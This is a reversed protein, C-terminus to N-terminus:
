QSISSLTYGFYSDPKVLLRIRYNGLSTAKKNTSKNYEYLTATLVYTKPDSAVAQTVTFYHGIDGNDSYTFTYSDSGKDYTLFGGNGVPSPLSTSDTYQSCVKLLEAAAISNKGESNAKSVNIDSEKYLKSNLIQYAFADFFVSDEQALDDAKHFSAIGKNSMTEAVVNLIPELDGIQALTLDTLVLATTAQATTTTETAPLNTKAGSCGCFTLAMVMLLILGTIGRMKM